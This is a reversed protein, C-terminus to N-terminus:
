AQVQGYPRRSHSSGPTAASTADNPGSHTPRDQVIGVLRAARATAEDTVGRAVATPAAFVNTRVSEPHCASQVSTSPTTPDNRSFPKEPPEVPTTSPAPPVAM